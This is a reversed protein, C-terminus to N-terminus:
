VVWCGPWPAGGWRYRTVDTSSSNLEFTGYQGVGDLWPDEPNEPDSAPYEGSAVAPAKPVSTDYVFYDWKAQFQVAVSDGDPDAVNNAYIKGLTRM